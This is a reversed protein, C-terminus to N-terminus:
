SVWPDYTGFSWLHGEIDRCSYMKGGYDPETLEVVVVAGAKAARAHHADADDIVVYVSQTCVGGVHAPLKQMAGYEDDRHSGVMIMGNGLTLQAHAITGAEGPVVLHQTFGFARCLWDIAAPADAYRMTPILPATTRPSPDTM